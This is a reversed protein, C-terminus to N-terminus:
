FTSTQVNNNCFFVCLVARRHRSFWFNWGVTTRIESGDGLSVWSRFWIVLGADDCTFSNLLHRSSSFTQNCTSAENPLCLCLGFSHARLKPFSYSVINNFVTDKVHTVHFSIKCTGILSRVLACNEWRTSFFFNLFFFFRCRFILNQARTNHAIEYVNNIAQSTSKGWHWRMFLIYAPTHGRHNSIWVSNTLLLSSNRSCM